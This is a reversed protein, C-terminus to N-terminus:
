RLRLWKNQSKSQLYTLAAFLFIFAIAGLLSEIGSLTHDAWSKIGIGTLAGYLIIIHLIYITLTNRGMLIIRNQTKLLPEAYILLCLFVANYSLQKLMYLEAHAFNDMGGLYLAFEAILAISKLFFLHIACLMVPTWYNTLKNQFRIFLVGIFAGYFIFSIWPFIPFISHPGKLANQLIEPAQAPFFGNLQFLYASTIFSVLSLTPYVVLPSIRLLKVFVVYSSILLLIGVGISNLVHFAFMRENFHGSAYVDINAINLQLLYGILILTLGRVLGKKVRLNQYWPLEDFRSLAYTFVMGSVTFFLPATFGRIISWAFYIWSDSEEINYTFHKYTTSIFHGQLMLIIAIGRAFDLFLIRNPKLSNQTSKSATM